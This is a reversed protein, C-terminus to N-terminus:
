RTHDSGAAPSSAHHSTGPAGSSAGPLAVLVRDLGEAVTVSPTPLPRDAMAAVTQPPRRKGAHPTPDPKPPLPTRCHEVYGPINNSSLADLGLEAMRKRSRRKTSAMATVHLGTNKYRSVRPEDLRDLPIVVGHAFRATYSPRVPQWALRKRRVKPMVRKAQRLYKVKSSSLRVRPMVGYEIIERRLRIMSRRNMTKLELVGNVRKHNRLFKLAADVYPVRQGDNTRVRRLEAGTMKHVRGRSTTTRGLTRDHMLVLKDDATTRVDTEIADAGDRVAARFADVTNETHGHPGPHGRHAVVHLAGCAPLRAGTEAAHAPTLTTATLATAATAASAASAVLAPLTRTSRTRRPRTRTSRTIRPSTRTPLSPLIRRFHHRPTRYARIPRRRM